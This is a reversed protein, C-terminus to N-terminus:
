RLDARLKPGIMAMAASTVMAWTESTTSSPPNSGFVDNGWTDKYLVNYLYLGCLLCYPSIVHAVLFEATVLNCLTHCLINRHRRHSSPYQSVSWSQWSSVQRCLHREVNQFHGTPKQGGGAAPSSSGSSILAPLSNTVM